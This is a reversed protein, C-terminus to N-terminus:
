ACIFLSDHSKLIKAIQTKGFQFKDVLVQAPMHSRRLSQNGRGKPELYPLEKEKFCNYNGNKYVMLLQWAFCMATYVMMGHVGDM